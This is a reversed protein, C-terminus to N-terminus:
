ITRAPKLMDINLHEFLTRKDRKRRRKKTSKNELPTEAHPPFYSGQCNLFKERKFM